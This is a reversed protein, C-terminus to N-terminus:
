NPATNKTTVRKEKKKAIRLFNDGILISAGKGKKLKTIHQECPLRGYTYKDLNQRYEFYSLVFDKLV